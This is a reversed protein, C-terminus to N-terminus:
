EDAGKMVPALENQELRELAIAILDKLLAGEGPGIAWGSRQGEGADIRPAIAVALVDSLPWLFATREPTENRGPDIVPAPRWSRVADPWEERAEKFVCAVAPTLGKSLMREFRLEITGYTQALAATNRDAPIYVHVANGTEMGEEIAMAGGHMRVLRRAIILGLGKSGKGVGRSSGGLNIERAIQSPIGDGSDRVCLDAFTMQPLYRALARPLIRPPTDGCPSASISISGGSPVHKISNALLNQLVQEIRDRDFTLNSCAEHVEIRFDIEKRHMPELFLMSIEELYERVDHPAVTLPREDIRASSSDILSDVLKGLRNVTRIANSLFKEGGASGSGAVIGLSSKLATLPTRLEHAVMAVMEDRTDAQERAATVDRVTVLSGVDPSLDDLGVWSASLFREPVCTGEIERDIVDSQLISFEEWLGHLNLCSVNGVEYVNEPLEGDLGLLAGFLRNASVIRGDPSVLAAGIPVAEILRELVEKDGGIRFVLPVTDEGEDALNRFVAIDNKGFAEKRISGFFLVGRVKSGFSVPVLFYSEIRSGSVLYAVDAGSRRCYIKELAEGEPSGHGNTFMRYANRLKQRLEPLRPSLERSEVMIYVLERDRATHFACFEAQTREMMNALIAQMVSDNGVAKLLRIKFSEDM